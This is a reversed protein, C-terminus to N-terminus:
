DPLGTREIPILGVNVLEKGWNAPFSTIEEANRKADVIFCRYGIERFFCFFADTNTGSVDELMDPYLEALIVPRCRALTERAGRFVRLEAGEVDVKMFDVRELALADLPRLEVLQSEMETGSPQISLFSHGPNDTGKPWVLNAQGEADSLGYRYITIQDGLRNLDITKELYEVTDARPEFAHIRGRPGVLTSALLSFWGLNAGVDVFVAEPRLHSAVFASEISEYSDFLCGRSVFRDGLDIWMLRKGRMVQAIVWVRPLDQLLAQRGFEKSKLFARRLAPVNAARQAGKIALESEPERGLIMRYAWMAEDRTVM